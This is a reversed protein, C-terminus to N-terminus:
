LRQGLSKFQEITDSFNGFFSGARTIASKLNGEPTVDEYSMTVTLKQVSDNSNNDLTIDNVGIPFANRLKVGYIVNHNRDLQQIIVDTRYEVDYSVAYTEPDIISNTWKDFLKKPYYDNTLLFSFTIDPNVYGTPTKTTQRFGQFPADLTGFTRGPITCSECLIALDRPNNNIRDKKLDFGGLLSGIAFGAIDTEVNSLIPLTMFVQFRNQVALGRRRTIVARMDDITGGTKNAKVEDFLGM